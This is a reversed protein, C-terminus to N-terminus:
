LMNLIINSIAGFNNEKSILKLIKYNDPKPIVLNNIIANNMENVRKDTM